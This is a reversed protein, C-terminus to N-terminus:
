PGAKSRTTGACAFPSPRVRGVAIGLWALGTAATIALGARFGPPIFRMVVRHRGPDPLAVVRQARNGRLIPVARGDLTATWGPMWTDAVVLLGPAGTTARVEVRDPDTSDYEAPTFTQRSASPGLPDSPLLVVERPSVEAFRSVASIDDPALCARPVVYARPLATPNRYIWYARGRWDGSAVVPWPADPEPRDSVLFVVNMRDLVGQQIARRTPTNPIFPHPPDFIPYLTEYLDAAHQVQFYDNVNTKELGHGFARLDDFFADRARIRYPGPPRLRAFDAGIPDPGVFRAAPATKWLWQGHLGLEVLALAGVIWAVWRRRSLGPGLGLCALGVGLSAALFIPDGLLGSAARVCAAWDDRRGPSPATSGVVILGAVFGSAWVWYVRRWARWDERDGGAPRGIAELGFGALMSVALSALFLARTPVRFRDMGPVFAGLLAYLGLRRGSAFAVSLGALTAWGLAVRRSPSRLVAAISLVLPVWGFALVTEWYNARGLHESPGGLARPSLLQVLNSPSLHYPAADVGPAAQGARLSWGNALADPLWEVATLGVVLVVVVALTAVWGLVSSRARRAAEVAAWVALVLGLYYAEQPHGTLGCLALILTLAIMGRRDGRTMLSFAYFAWPFWAAAWVHPLHGEFAQALLFPSAEFCGGVVTAAWRGLGSGRVLLYAGYGGWVLHGVTLWGLAAPCWLWWAVWVPPYFLGAQPNGVRPRGGFGSPDWSPLRGHRAIADAIKAHHPLFLRTLDNGPSEVGFRVTRDVSPRDGDVLLAAPDAVLRAAVVLALGILVLLPPLDGLHRRM